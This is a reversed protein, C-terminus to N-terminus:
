ISQMREEITRRRLDRFDPAPARGGAAVGPRPAFILVDPAAPRTDAASWGCDMIALAIVGLDCVLNVAFDRSQRWDLTIRHLWREHLRESGHHATDFSFSPANDPAPPQWYSAPADAGDHLPAVFFLFMTLFLARVDM